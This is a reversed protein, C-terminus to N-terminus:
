RLQKIDMQNLWQPVNLDFKIWIIQWREIECNSTLYTSANNITPWTSRYGSDATNEVLTTSIILLICWIIVEFTKNIGSVWKNQCWCSNEFCGILECITLLSIIFVSLCLAICWGGVYRTDNGAFSDIIDVGCIETLNHNGGELCIELTSRNGKINKIYIYIHVYINFQLYQIGQDVYNYEDCIQNNISCLVSGQETFKEIGYKTINSEFCVAGTLPWSYEEILGCCADATGSFFVSSYTIFAVIEIVSLVLLLCTLLTMLIEWKNNGCKPM